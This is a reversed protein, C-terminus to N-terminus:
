ESVCALSKRLNGAFLFVCQLDSLDHRMHVTYGTLQPPCPAVQGVSTWFPVGVCECSAVFTYYPAHGAAACPMAEEHRV